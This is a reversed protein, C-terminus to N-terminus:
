PKPIVPHFVSKPNKAGYMCCPDKFGSTFSNLDRFGLGQLGSNMLRFMTYVWLSEDFYFGSALM